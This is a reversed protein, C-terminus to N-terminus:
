CQVHGQDDHVNVSSITGVRMKGSITTADDDTDSLKLDFLEDNDPAVHGPAGLVVQRLRKVSEMDKGATVRAVSTADVGEINAKGEIEIAADAAKRIRRRYDKRWLIQTYNHPWDTYPPIAGSLIIRNPFRRGAAYLRTRCCKCWHFASMKEHYGILLRTIHRM